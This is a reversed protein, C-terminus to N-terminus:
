CSNLRILMRPGRRLVSTGRPESTLDEFDAWQVKFYLKGDEERRHSLVKGVVYEPGDKRKARLDEETPM